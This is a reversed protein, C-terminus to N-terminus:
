KRCDIMITGANCIYVDNVHINNKYYKKLDERLHEYDKDDVPKEIRVNILRGIPSVRYLGDKTYKTYKEVGLIGYSDYETQLSVVFEDTIKYLEENTNFCSAFTLFLLFILNIKKM